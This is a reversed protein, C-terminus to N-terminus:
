GFSSYFPTTVYDHQIINMTALKNKIKYVWDRQRNFGLLDSLNKYFKQQHKMASFLNNSLSDNYLELLLKIYLVGGGTVVGDAGMLLSCDFVSEDGQMITGPRNNKDPYRRLLESFNRFNGSSDKIGVVEKMNLIEETTDIDVQNGTFGSSNYFIIPMDTNDAIAKIHHVLSKPDPYKYYFPSMCVMYDIGSKEIAKVQKLTKRTSSGSVTGLIPVRGATHAATAEILLQRQSAILAPGEGMTGAIMIGNAGENICYDILKHLSQLDIDENKLLPTPMAIIVGKLKESKM